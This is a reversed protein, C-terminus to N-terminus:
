TQKWFRSRTTGMFKTKLSESVRRQSSCSVWISSASCFGWTQQLNVQGDSNGLGKCQGRLEEAKLISPSVVAM